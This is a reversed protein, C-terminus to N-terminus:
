EWRKWMVEPRYEANIKAGDHASKERFVRVSSDMGIDLVGKSHEIKM